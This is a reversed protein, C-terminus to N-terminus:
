KNLNAILLITSIVSSVVSLIPYIDQLFQPMKRRVPEIYVIDNPEINLSAKKMGEITTLDIISVDPNKLDGRILRINGAKSENNMGGYLAIAEIVTINDNELPIVKGGLAGIVVIRKNAIKTNVFVDFYYKGYEKSLISDAQRITYGELKIDGVMPLYAKGNERILYRIEQTQQNNNLPAQKMLEFDPDILREGKNTYVKITIYDDRSIIFNNDAETKTKNRISDVVYEYDTKFM